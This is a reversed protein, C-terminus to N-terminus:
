FLDLSPPSSPPSGFNKIDHSNLKASIEVRPIETFHTKIDYDNPRSSIFINVISTTNKCIIDLSDMLNERHKASCEDLADIIIYAGRISCIDTIIAISESQDLRNTADMKLPLQWHSLSLILSEDGSYEHGNSLLQRLISLLVETSDGRRPESSDRSCYFYALPPGNRKRTEIMIDDIVLSTLISKGTGPGGNLWLFPTRTSYKWMEYSRQKLLWTGTDALRRSAITKHHSKETSIWNLIKM